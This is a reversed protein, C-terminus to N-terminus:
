KIEDLVIGRDDLDIDPTSHMTSKPESKTGHITITPINNFSINKTRPHLAGKSLATVPRSKSKSSGRRSNKDNELTSKFYESNARLTEHFYNGPQANNIDMNRILMGRTDPTELSFTPLHPNKPM